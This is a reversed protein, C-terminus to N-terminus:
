RGPNSRHPGADQYLDHYKATIPFSDAQSCIGSFDAYNASFWLSDLEIAVFGKYGAPIQVGGMDQNGSGTEMMATEAEIWDNGSQLWASKPEIWTAYVGNDPVNMQLGVRPGASEEAWESADVYFYAVNAGTWDYVKTRPDKEMAINKYHFMVATATSAGGPLTVALQKSGSNVGGTVVEAKVVQNGDWNDASYNNSEASILEGLELQEYGWRETMGSPLSGEGDATSVLIGVAMSSVLISFATLSAILKKM